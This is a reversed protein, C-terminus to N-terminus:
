ESRRAGSTFTTSPRPSRSLSTSRQRFPCPSIRRRRRPRRRPRHRHHRLVRHSPHRPSPPRTTFASIRVDTVGLGEFTSQAEAVSAPLANVVDEVELATPTTTTFVLCVQDTEGEQLRRGGGSEPLNEIRYRCSGIRWSSGRSNPRRPPSLKAFSSFTARRGCFTQITEKYVM